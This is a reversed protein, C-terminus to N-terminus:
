IGFQHLQDVFRPGEDGRCLHGVFTGLVASGDDEIESWRGEAGHEVFEFLDYVVLRQREQIFDLCLDAGETDPCEEVVSTFQPHLVQLHEGARAINRELESTSGGM